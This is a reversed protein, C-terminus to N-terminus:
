FAPQYEVRKLHGFIQTYKSTKTQAFFEYEIPYARAFDHMASVEDSLFEDFLFYYENTHHWLTTLLFLTASYLDADFHVLLPNANRLNITTLFEPVSNQFWGKVFKARPDNIKPLNGQTSFTGPEMKRWQEPLGVFSDFGYFTAKPDSFRSMMRIMSRGAKVGFELYTLPVDGMQARAFDYLNEREEVMAEAPPRRPAYIIERAEILRLYEASREKRKPREANNSSASEDTAL